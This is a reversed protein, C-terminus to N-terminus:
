IVSIELGLVTFIFDCKGWIIVFWSINVREKNNQARNIRQLPCIALERNGWEKRVMSVICLETDTSAKKRWPMRLNTLSFSFPKTVIHM